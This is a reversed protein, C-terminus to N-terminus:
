RQGRRLWAIWGILVCIFLAIIVAAEPWSTQDSM